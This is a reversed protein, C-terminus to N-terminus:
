RGMRARAGAMPLRSGTTALGRADLQLREPSRRTFSGSGGEAGINQSTPQLDFRCTLGEQVVELTQGGMAVTGAGPTPMPTPRWLM